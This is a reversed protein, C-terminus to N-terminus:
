AVPQYVDHLSPVAIKPSESAQPTRSSTAGKISFVEEEFDEGGLYYLRRDGGEDSFMTLGQDVLETFIARAADGDKIEKGSFCTRIDERVSVELIEGEIPAPEGDAGSRFLQVRLFFGDAEGAGDAFTEAPKAIAARGCESAAYLEWIYRTFEM